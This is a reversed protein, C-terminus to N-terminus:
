SVNRLTGNIQSFLVAAQARRTVNLKEFAHSLYNKVTKDSLNLEVAIEKNTKGQAVLALVRREQVALPTTDAPVGPGVGQRIGDLLVRTSASDILVEGSAIARVARCLDHRGVHKTFYGAAGARVADMVSAAGNERALIVIRTAPAAERLRACVDLVGGDPLAGAVIAVAPRLNAALGVATALSDADGVVVLDKEASLMARVGLRVIEDADVILVTARQRQRRADVRARLAIGGGEAASKAKALRELMQQRLGLSSSM